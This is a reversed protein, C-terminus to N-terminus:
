NKRVRKHKLACPEAVAARLDFGEFEPIMIVASDFMDIVTSSEGRLARPLARRVLEEPQSAQVIWFIILDTDDVTQNSVARVMREAFDQM